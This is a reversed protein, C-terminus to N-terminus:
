VGRGALVVHSRAGFDDTLIVNATGQVKAECTGYLSLHMLQDWVYETPVTFPVTFSKPTGVILQDGDNVIADIVISSTGALTLRNTSVLKLHQHQLVYQDTALTLSGPSWGDVHAANWNSPQVLSATGSDAIASTFVHRAPM